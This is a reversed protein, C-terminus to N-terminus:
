VNRAYQVHMADISRGKWRGGWTWGNAEYIEAVEIPMSYTHDGMGNREPDWDVACGWSHTSLTRGGRKLRYVFAGGYLDLGHHRLLAITMKDYYETTEEYGDREKVKGRAWRWIKMLVDSLSPAVLRHIAITRVAEDTDWALRMKNYPSPWPIPMAIINAARWSASLKGNSGTPNGYTAILGRVGSPVVPKNM